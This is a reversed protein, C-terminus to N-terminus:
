KYPKLHQLVPVYPDINVDFKKEQQDVSANWVRSSSIYKDAM